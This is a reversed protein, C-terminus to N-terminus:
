VWSILWPVGVFVPCFLCVLLRIARQMEAWAQRCPPDLGATFAALRGPDAGAQFM